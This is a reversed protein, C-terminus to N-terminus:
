SMIDPLDVQTIAEVTKIGTEILKRNEPNQGWTWIKTLANRVWKKKTLTDITSRLFAIEEKMKRIEIESEDNKSQIMDELANLRKRLEDGETKSFYSDDLEDLKDELKQKFTELEKEFYRRQVSSIVEEEIRKIWARIANSISRADIIKSKAKEVDWLKGPCYEMSYEGQETLSFEIKFFYDDYQIRIIYSKENQLDSVSFDEMRFVGYDLASLIENKISKRIM